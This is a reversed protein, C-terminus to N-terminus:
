RTSTVAEVRRNRSYCGASVDKCLLRTAGYSRVTLRTRAVGRHVLHDAVANARQASLWDNFSVSGRPDAFGEIAVPDNSAALCTAFRDLAARGTADLKWKGVAFRPTELACAVPLRPELFAAPVPSAAPTEPADPFAAAATPPAADPIRAAAARDHPYHSAGLALRYRDTWEVTLGSVKVVKLQVGVAEGATADFQLQGRMRFVYDKVYSFANSDGVLGAQVDLQHGGPKVVDSYIPVAPDADAPPLAVPLPVGDLLVKLEKYRLWTTERPGVTIELLSGQAAAAPLALAALVTALVARSLQGLHLRSVVRRVRM